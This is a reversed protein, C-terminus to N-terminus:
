RSWVLAAPDASISMRSKLSRWRKPNGNRGSYRMNSHLFQLLGTFLAATSLKIALIRLELSSNPMKTAAFSTVPSRPSRVAALSMMRRANSRSLILINTRVRASNSDKRDTLSMTTVIRSFNPPNIIRSAANQDQSHEVHYGAKPDLGALNVTILSPRSEARSRRQGPRRRLVATWAKCVEVM